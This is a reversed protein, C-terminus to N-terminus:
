LAPAREHWGTEKQYLHGLNLLLGEAFPRGVLQFGLPLGGASFGMPMGLAPLGLFNIPRTCRAVEFLMERYGPDAQVDAEALSPAPFSAGPIHLVDVKAFVDSLYRETMVGRLELAELYRTAPIYLGPQLRGLVQASYDGPREAMWKRHVAAAEAAQIINTVDQLAQIDPLEVDLVEAGMGRFVEQAAAIAQEVEGTVRDYFYARPVGIRVGKVSRELGAEYDPVGEGSATPDDSDAGAIVAALRACDRVTRALPGAQDLSFAVPMLGYRSVRGHTPKLGVVGCFASPIRVSGGTDSGLAGYVLRGAVACGSGSSSGGTIHEPNWPNRCHGFHENHGTPGLAFEAMNLRGIELAGAADLRGLVTATHDPVYDRLIKSGCTSVRGARYFLDKHALPVGHLPGRCRGRALEADAERAAQLGQEGDVAIFANLVSQQKDIRALCAQVVELSSVQRAAIAEAAQVLTLHTLEAGM